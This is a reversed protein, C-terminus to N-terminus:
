KPELPDLHSRFYDLTDNLIMESCLHTAEDTTLDSEHIRTTIVQFCFPCTSNFAGLGDTTHLFAPLKNNSM